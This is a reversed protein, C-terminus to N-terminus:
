FNMRKRIISKKILDYDDQYISYDESVFYKRNNYIENILDPNKLSIYKIIFSDIKNLYNNSVFNCSIISNINRKLDRLDKISKSYERIMEELNSREEESIGYVNLINNIVKYNIQYIQEKSIYPIKLENQIIKDIYENEKGISEIGYQYM